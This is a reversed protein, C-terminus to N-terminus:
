NLKQTLPDLVKQWLWSYTPQPLQKINIVDREFCCGLDDFGLIYGLM